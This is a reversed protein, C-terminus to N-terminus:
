ILERRKLEDLRKSTKGRMTCQLGPTVLEASTGFDGATALQAPTGDSIESMALLRGGRWQLRRSHGPRDLGNFATRSLYM